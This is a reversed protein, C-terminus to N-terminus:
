DNSWALQEVGGFPRNPCDYKTGELIDKGGSITNGDFQAIFPHPATTLWEDWHKYMLDDIIVGQSLPLDPYKEATSEKIPVQQILIVSKEDPSFLFGDIGKESNSLQKRETGDPNMEWVQSSGSANSLYAIKTGNKIWTASSENDKTTTLLKGNNGDANMIHLTHHSKNQEVSYYSVGYVIQKADPSAAVGGVRGM